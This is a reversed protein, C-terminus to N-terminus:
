GDSKKIKVWINGTENAEIKEEYDALPCWVPIEDGDMLDKGVLVCRRTYGELNKIHYFACKSCIEVKRYYLKAM